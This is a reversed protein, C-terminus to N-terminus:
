VVWCQNAKIHNDSCQKLTYIQYSIKENDSYTINQNIYSIAWNKIYDSVDLSNVLKIKNNNENINQDEISKMVFMLLEVNNQYQVNNLMDNKNKPDNMFKLTKQADSSLKLNDSSNAEPLLPKLTGDDVVSTGRSGVGVMEFAFGSIPYLCGLGILGILLKKTCKNM